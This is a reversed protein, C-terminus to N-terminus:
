KLKSKYDLIKEALTKANLNAANVTIKARKYYPIRVTLHGTIQEMLEVDNLNKLLPRRNKSLALRHFLLGPNAELYVTLGKANMWEMNEFFCPTGGGTSVILNENKETSHLADRELLRFTEQGQSDFINSISTGAKTEVLNDTDVFPIKLIKSLAEATKSKGSGM